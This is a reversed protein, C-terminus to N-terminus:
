GAIRKRPSKAPKAATAPDGGGSLVNRDGTFVEVDERHDVAILKVEDMYVVEALEQTSIGEGAALIDQWIGDWLAIRAALAQRALAAPALRAIRTIPLDFAQTM